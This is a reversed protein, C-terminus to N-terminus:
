LPNHKQTAHSPSTQNNKLTLLNPNEKNELFCKKPPTPQHPNKRRRKEKMIHHNLSSINELFYKLCILTMKKPM